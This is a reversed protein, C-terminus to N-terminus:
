LMLWATVSPLWGGMGAADREFVHESFVYVALRTPKHVAGAFVQSPPFRVSPLSQAAFGSSIQRM